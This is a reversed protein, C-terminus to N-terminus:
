YDYLPDKSIAEEIEIFSDTAKSVRSERDGRATFLLPDGEKNKPLKSVDINGKDDKYPNGNNGETKTSDVFAPRKRDFVPANRGMLRRVRNPAGSQKLQEAVQKSVEQAVQTNYAETAKATRAKTVDFVEDLIVDLDAEGRNFGDQLKGQLIKIKDRTVAIGLGKIEEIAASLELNTAISGFAVNSLSKRHTDADIYKSLDLDSMEPEKKANPNPPPNRDGNEPPKSIIDILPKKGAYSVAKVSEETFQGTEILANELASIVDLTEKPLNTTKSADHLTALRQATAQVEAAKRDTEQMYSTFKSQRLIGDGMIMDGAKDLLPDTQMQREISSIDFGRSKMDDLIKRTEAKM